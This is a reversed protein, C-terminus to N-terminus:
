KRKGEINVQVKIADSIGNLMYNMGFDSRKITTTAVYGSRYGGWPDSGAGVHRLEFTVPKTVGHLVLNGSLLGTKKDQWELKTGTFSMTPFQKANFFDPGLLDKDRQKHNTDLSKLPVEVSVKTQEPSAPDLSFSGSVVNFRGEMESVGLHGVTFRVSSHDPDIQYTGAPSDTQEKYVDEAAVSGTHLFFAAILSLSYASRSKRSTHVLIKM